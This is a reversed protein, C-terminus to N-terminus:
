SMTNEIGLENRLRSRDKKTNVFPSANSPSSGPAINLESITKYMCVSVTISATRRQRRQGTLGAGLDDPAIRGPLALGGGLARRRGCGRRRLGMVVVVVVDGGGDADAVARELEGMDEVVERGATLSAACVCRNELIQESIYAHRINQVESTTNGFFFCLQVLLGDLVLLPREDRGGARQRRQGAGLGAPRGPVLADDLVLGRRLLEPPALSHEAVM